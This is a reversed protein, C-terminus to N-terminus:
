VPKRVKVNATASRMHVQIQCLLIRVQLKRPLVQHRPSPLCQPCLSGQLSQCWDRSGKAEQLQLLPLVPPRPRWFVAWLEIVLFSFCFSLCKMMLVEILVNHLWVAVYQPTKFFKCRPSM